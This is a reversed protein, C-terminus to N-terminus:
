EIDRNFILKKSEKKWDFVEVRQRGLEIYKEKDKLHAVYKIKDYLDAFNNNKFYIAANGLVEPLSSSDSSLVVTDCAMAELPPIGFGEYLSPFVFFDAHNYLAPLDTDDVFGTFILHDLYEKPFDKLFNDMKWGKRGALVLPPIDVNNDLLKKYVTLLLSLNKRPELTSLTLIYKEPLCYKKQLSNINTQAILSYFDKSIGCNILMIKNSDIKLVTSIRNKSFESITIIKKCVYKSHINSIRFYYKSLTSMTEGCDWCVMDHLTTYINKHFFLIPEPFALFVYADAKLKYLHFPLIFQNFILKNCKKLTVVRVNDQKVIENYLNFVKNKFVLIYENQPYQQIYEKSINLAYREIGSFNDELSCLDFLIRM